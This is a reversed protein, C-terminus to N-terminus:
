GKIQSIYYDCDIRLTAHDAIHSQGPPPVQRYPGVRICERVGDYSHLALSDKSLTSLYHVM